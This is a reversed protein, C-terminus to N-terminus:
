NNYSWRNKTIQQYKWLDSYENALYNFFTMTRWCKWFSFDPLCVSLSKNELFVSVSAVFLTLFNSQSWSVMWCVLLGVLLHSISDCLVRCSVDFWGFNIADSFITWFGCPISMNWIAPFRSCSQKLVPSIQYGLLAMEMYFYNYWM